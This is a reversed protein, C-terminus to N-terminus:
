APSREIMQHLPDTTAVVDGGLSPAAEHHDTARQYAAGIALLLGDDHPRGILQLSSPMGDVSGSPLCLAPSGSYNFPVQTRCAVQLWDVRDDGLDALMDALRPAVTTASPTVLAQLGTMAEDLQRQFHSRYRLARLYDSAHVYPGAALMGAGMADREEILDVHEGHLSLMEAYIVTWSAADVLDVDPLVVDVVEIGLDALEAVAADYAALVAPHARGEFWGRLRGVRMGSVETGLLGVYDPVPRKSSTADGPDAGAIVAMMRAADEASRTMPGAHDMTWSLGMVGHRPVRGYTPKLGTIGCYAAPIRISGGTDTGIALPMERAAVAAGSGSSSGGTTRTLDWPNRCPGFTRNDAGGCAFEFTHLKALLIGGAASLRGALAADREPVSDRYLASGGTTTIGATAVIDKLGYPIGEMPRATGARWRHESDQAQELARDALLLLVANLSGDVAGIRDICAQTAEVPSAAGAAYLALLESATLEALDSM